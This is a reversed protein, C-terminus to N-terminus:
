GFLVTHIDIMQQLINLCSVCESGINEGPYQCGQCMQVAWTTALSFIYTRRTAMKERAIMRVM